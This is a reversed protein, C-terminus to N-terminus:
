RRSGAPRVVSATVLLDPGLRETALRALGPAKSLSFGEGGVGGPARSGGLVRPALFAAIADVLGARFFGWLTEAGGEVMLGTVEERALRSLLRPLSVRGAAGGPLSWVEVGRRTLRRAAPHDPPQATVVLAGEPSLFIRARDPVRLRGDLVIRRHRGTRNKRLRRTLRPDDALVTGAGVLVADYEERLLLGRRRASPGTIWRSAGGQTATKGDLTAAWKALVFPRGRTIWVEFRENLRRAREGRERDARSVAIGARSLLELGRGRVLPNPDRAAVVVRRIGAERIAEVCPPTRGHHVCPELSVYLDANRARTGAAALAEVEAHPGGARRHFGEGALRGDQVVVAGVMPNPSVGYRGREALELARDM